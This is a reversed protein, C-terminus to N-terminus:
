KPIPRFKIGYRIIGEEDLEHVRRLVVEVKMGLHLAEEKSDVIQGVMMEGDAFAVVAVPYPIQNEFGSPGVRIITYSVIKGQKGLHGALITRNRWVKVPSIM